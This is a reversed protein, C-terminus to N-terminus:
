SWFRTWHALNLSSSCTQTSAEWRLFTVPIDYSALLSYISEKKRGDQMGGEM